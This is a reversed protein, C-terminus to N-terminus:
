DDSYNSYSYDGIMYIEVVMYYYYPIEDGSYMKEM